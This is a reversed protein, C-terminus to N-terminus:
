LNRRSTRRHYRPPPTNPPPKMALKGGKRRVIKWGDDHIQHHCSRCLLCMNELDTHGGSEWHVIHHADCWDPPAGCGVCGGDRAALVVRQAGSARRRSRGLWLPRGPGDFIAPLIGGGCALRRAEELSVPTDDVLRARALEGKVADYQAIVLLDATPPADVKTRTLLHALVDAMRQESGPRRSSDEARWLRDAERTLVAEVQAGTVPDWRAYLVRMGDDETRLRAYRRARMLRGPSEKRRVKRVTGVFQDVTQEKAAEVLASEDIECRGSVQAIKRAHDFTIEGRRLAGSTEALRSLRVATDVEMRCRGRSQRSQTRLIGVAAGRGERRELEALMEAKLAAVEAEVRSLAGLGERLRVAGASRVDFGPPVLRPGDGTCMSGVHMVVTVFWGERPRCFKVVYRCNGRSIIVPREM